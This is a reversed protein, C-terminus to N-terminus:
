KKCNKIAQALDRYIDDPDELGISLRITTDKVEMAQRESEPLQGFITSWPHIALSRNDFLNTARHVLNLANIFTYCAEIDPLEITIM